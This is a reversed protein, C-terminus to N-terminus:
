KLNVLIMELMMKLLNHDVFKDNETFLDIVRLFTLPQNGEVLTRARYVNEGVLTIM